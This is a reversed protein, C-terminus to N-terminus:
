EVADTTYHNDYQDRTCYIPRILCLEAAFALKITKSNVLGLCSGVMLRMRARLSHMSVMKYSASKMCHSTLFVLLFNAQNKFKMNQDLHYRKVLYYQHPVNIWFFRLLFFIIEIKGNHVLIDAGVTYPTSKEWNM